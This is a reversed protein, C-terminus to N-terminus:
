KERVIQKMVSEPVHKMVPRVVNTWYDEIYAPVQTPATPEIIQIPKPPM